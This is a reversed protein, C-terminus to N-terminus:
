QIAGILTVAILTGAIFEWVKWVVDKAFFPINSMKFLVLMVVPAILVWWTFGLVLSPIVYLSFVMFKYPYSHSQGYGMHLVAGLGGCCILALYWPEGLWILCGCLVSPLVYRRVWKPGTGGIAFLIGGLGMMLIYIWESM